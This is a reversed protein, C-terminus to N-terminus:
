RASLVPPGSNLQNYLSVLKVSPKSNMWSDTKIAREYSHWEGRVGAQEPSDTRDQIARVRSRTLNEVVSREAM